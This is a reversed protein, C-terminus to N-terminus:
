KKPFNFNKLIYFYLCVPGLEDPTSHPPKRAFVKDSYKAKIWNEKLRRFLLANLVLFSFLILSMKKLFFFKRIPILPLVHAKMNPRLKQNGYRMPNLM